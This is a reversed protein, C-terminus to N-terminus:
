WTWVGNHRGFQSAPHVSIGLKPKNGRFAATTVNGSGGSVGKSTLSTKYPKVSTELRNLTSDALSTYYQTRDVNLQVSQGQFDFAKEGEALAQAQLMVVESYGMWYDRVGGTADTMDFTTVVGGAANFMDMGRRLFGIITEVSFMMDPFNMLTAKAKNVFMRVDEIANSMSANIVFLRATERMSGPASSNSYKWSVVYPSLSAPLTATNVSATYFWGSATRVPSTVATFPLLKANGTPAYVEFGVTGYLSPTVLNLTAVDGAMEVVDGVGLPVTTLGLVRLSEVAYHPSHQSDNNLCWRIQYKQGDLSPPVSSPVHVVAQAEIGTSFSDHIVSIDFANGSAYMEGSSSLLEWTVYANTANYDADMFFFARGIAGDGAQIEDVLTQFAEPNHSSFPVNLNTRVVIAFLVDRSAGFTTTFAVRIGYSVTDVGGSTDLHISTASTLTSVSVSLPVASVPAVSVVSVTLPDVFEGPALLSTVDASVSLDSLEPKTFIFPNSM